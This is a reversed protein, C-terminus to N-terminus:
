SSQSPLRNQVWSTIMNAGIAGIVAPFMISWIQFGKKSSAIVDDDIAQASELVGFMPEFGTMIIVTITAIGVLALGAILVRVRWPEIGKVWIVVAIAPLVGIAIGIYTSLNEM